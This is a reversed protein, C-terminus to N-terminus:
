IVWVIKRAQKQDTRALHKKELKQYHFPAVTSMINFFFFFNFLIEIATTYKQSLLAILKANCEYKEM